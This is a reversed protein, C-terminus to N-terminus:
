MVIVPVRQVANNGMGRAAWLPEVPRPNGDTDRARCGLEYDGPAGGSWIRRWSQLAHPGDAADVDACAWTVGVDVSVDVSRIASRGSWARGTMEPTVVHVEQM